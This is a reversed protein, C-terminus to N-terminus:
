ERGYLYFDHHLCRNLIKKASKIDLKSKDQCIVIGGSDHTCKLVFRDPLSDFDLDIEDM